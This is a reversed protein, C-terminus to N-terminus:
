RRFHTLINLLIKSKVVRHRNGASKFPGVEFPPNSRRSLLLFLQHLRYVLRLAQSRSQDIAARSSITLLQGMLNFLTDANLRFGIVRSQFGFLPLTDLILPSFAPQGQYDSGICEAHADVLGVAPVDDMVLHGIGQFGIVLLGPPRSPVPRLTKWQDKKFWGIQSYGLPTNFIRIWLVILQLM